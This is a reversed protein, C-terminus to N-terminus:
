NIREESLIGHKTHAAPVHPGGVQLLLELLDTAHHLLEGEDGHVCLERAHDGPVGRCRRGRDQAKFVKNKFQERIRM